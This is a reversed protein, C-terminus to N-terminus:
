DYDKHEKDDYYEENVNKRDEEEKAIRQFGGWEQDHVAKLSSEPAADQDHFKHNYASAAASHSDSEADEYQINPAKCPRKCCQCMAAKAKETEEDVRNDTVTARFCFGSSALIRWRM